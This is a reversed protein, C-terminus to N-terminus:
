EGLHGELARLINAYDSRARVLKTRLCALETKLIRWEMCNRLPGGECQFNYRDELQRVLMDTDLGEPMESRRSLLFV